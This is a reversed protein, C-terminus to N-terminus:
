TMALLYDHFTYNCASKINNMILIEDIGNEAAYSALNGEWYRMDLVHVESYHPSLFPVFANGFSEKLVAIKKGNKMASAQNQIKFLKNDGGLFVGYANAGEAYEALMSTELWEDSGQYMVQCEYDGPIIFYEVSDPNQELVPEQTIDYLLGLLGPISKKEM